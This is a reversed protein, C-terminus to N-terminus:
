PAAVGVDYTITSQDTASLRGWQGNPQQLYLGAGPSDIVIDGGARIQTSNPTLLRWAADRYEWTNGGLVETQGETPNSPWIIAM